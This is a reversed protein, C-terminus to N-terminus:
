IYKNIIYTRRIADTIVENNFILLKTEYREISETLKQHLCSINTFTAILQASNFLYQPLGEDLIGPSSLPALGPLCKM